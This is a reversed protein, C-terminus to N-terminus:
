ASKQQGSRPAHGFKQSFARTFVARSHYGTRFAVEDVSLRTENLLALARQLRWDTLYSMPGVGVLERFREAFRTRSMGIEAALSEVTWEHDLRHHILSLARGIQEDYVASLLRKLEEARDVAALLTEIYLVESLRSVSAAAGSRDHLVRRVLLRLLDDLMPRRARDDTTVHLLPPLARLLPHDSGDAFSFHGCILQISAAKDGSGYVFAGQGNYGSAMLADDLKVAMRGPADSLVHASGHPVMILEGPGVIATEGTPLAVHCTGRVVLHCRAARGHEPVDIAFPPSFDTHFYLTGKLAVTDLIDSLVDKM